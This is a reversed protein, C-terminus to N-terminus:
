TRSLGISPHPKPIGFALDHFAKDGLAAAFLAAIASPSDAAPPALDEAYQTLFGTHLRGALFAPHRVIRLLYDLNTPVGLLVTQEIAHELRQAAEIRTVGHAILKALM